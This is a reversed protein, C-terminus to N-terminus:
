LAREERAFVNQMPPLADSDALRSCAALRTAFGIKVGGAVVGEKVRTHRIREVMAERPCQALASLTALAGVMGLGAGDAHSNWPLYITIPHGWDDDPGVFRRLRRAELREETWGESELYWRIDDITLGPSPM